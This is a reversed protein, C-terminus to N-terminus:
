PRDGRHQSTPQHPQMRGPTVRGPCRSCIHCATGGRLCLGLAGPAWAAGGPSCCCCLLGTLLGVSALLLLSALVVGSLWPGQLAMDQQTTDRGALPSSGAATHIPIATRTTQSLPQQPGSTADAMSGTQNSTVSPGRCSAPPWPDQDSGDGCNDVDWVDCLLSPPICRGNRCRFYPGCSGLRFSTIAGVFDVRPQRGRTVLRLGLFPGSSTVPAPITLGCLPTGLLRPAGPHGEYFQLYSGPACPDAPAPPEWAGPKMLSYVLFFHFQFRIRDEPTAAQMWLWCDTDPAVFYFRRSAAHSRLLLGDGRWTHGCREELDATDLASVTLTTAGLLLLYPAM